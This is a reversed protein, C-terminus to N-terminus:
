DIRDRHKRRSVAAEVKRELQKIEAGVAGLNQEQGEKHQLAEHIINLATIVAIREAGLARGSDRAQKMRSSLIRASELLGNREDEPCSILYKKDLIELSVSVTESTM